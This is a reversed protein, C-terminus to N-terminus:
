APLRNKRFWLIFLYIIGLPPVIALFFGLVGTIVPTSTKHRGLLYSLLGIILMFIFVFEGLLTANINM